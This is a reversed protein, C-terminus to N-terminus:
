CEKTPYQRTLICTNEYILDRPKEKREFMECCRSSTVARRKNKFTIKSSWSEKNKRLRKKSRKTSKRSRM